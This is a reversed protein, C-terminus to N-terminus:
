RPGRLFVISPLTRLLLRMDYLFSRNRLYELDMRMWQEFPVSSRGRVQWLCTLGPVVALRERHWASCQLSEEVPLPRPGVLSMDGKLVNWLQPLEDLSTRRLFRGIRTIRPDNRMKFAPGDQDSFQRLSLQKYHADAQMTRLKYMRFRHGGHGEREQDFFAPGPSTAKVLAALVLVVPAVALLGLSAAFVDITRKAMPMPHAFFAEIRASSRGAPQDVGDRNSDALPAAEEPYTFVDCNPRNRGVPYVECIDSAVKWAGAKATDSLLVGVRRAALIGATDTIRLRRELVRALFELDRGTARERALEIILVALPSGHRDARLRERVAELRFDRESLIIGNYRHRRPSLKARVKRIWPQLVM